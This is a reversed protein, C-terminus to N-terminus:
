SSSSAIPMQNQTGSCVVYMDLSNAEQSVLRQLCKNFLSFHPRRFHAFPKCISAERGYCHVIGTTAFAGCGYHCRLPKLIVMSCKCIRRTKFVFFHLVIIFLSKRIGILILRLAAPSNVQQRVFFCNVCFRRSDGM